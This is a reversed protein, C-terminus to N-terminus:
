FIISFANLNSKSLLNFYEKQSHQDPNDIVEFISGGELKKEFKKFISIQDNISLSSDKRIIRNTYSERVKNNFRIEKIYSSKLYKGYHPQSLIFNDNSVDNKEKILNNMLSLIKLAFLECNDLRDLEIGCHFKIAENLGFFSISKLTSEKFNSSDFLLSNLFQWEKLNNLKKALFAEKFRFFEFIDELREQLIDYFKNDDQKAQISIAHLNILVKDLIIANDSLNRNNKKKPNIILSNLVNSMKDNYFIIGKKPLLYNLDSLNINSYDFNISYNFLNLYNSNKSSFNKLFIKDLDFQSKIHTNILKKENYSFELSIHSKGDDFLQNFNSIQSSFFKFFFEKEDINLNNFISLFLNNFNGLLLDESYYSKIRFLFNFFNQVLEFIEKINTPNQLIKLNGNYIYNLVSSTNLFISLPRLAWHNLHILAIEGSLYLDALKNPLLNLLLYQESVDSGVRNIFRDPNILENEVSNFLKSVDFPPTGLRTLKHRVKELGKEILFANIYERMLPATLYEIKTKTIRDEIESAIQKALNKSINGERILYQEIKKIQFLETSYKSTRIILKKNKDNLVKKMDTILKSVQKGLSTIKYGENNSSILRNQKLKNLHFSFNVSQSNSSLVEKQLLSYSKPRESYNLNKLIERRLPQHLTKLLKGLQNTNKDSSM